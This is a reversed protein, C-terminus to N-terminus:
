AAIQAAEGQHEREINKIVVTISEYGRVRHFQTEAYRLCSGLWRQSMKSGMEGEFVQHDRRRRGHHFSRSQYAKLWPEGSGVSAISLPCSEGDGRGLIRFEM